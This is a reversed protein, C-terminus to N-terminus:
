GHFDEEINDIVRAGADHLVNSTKLLLYALSGRALRTRLAAASLLMAIAAYTM